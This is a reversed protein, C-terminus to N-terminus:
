VLDDVPVAGVPARLDDGRGPVERHLVEDGVLVQDDGDGAAPVGLAGAGVEVARLLAAALADAAGRQAAVVHDLVEDGGGVVVPQQEEGGGAPDVAGLGVVE